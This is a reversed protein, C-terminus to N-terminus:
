LGCLDAACRDSMCAPCYVSPVAAIRASFKEAACPSRCLVDLSRLAYVHCVYSVSAEQEREKREWSELRSFAAPVPQCLGLLVLFASHLIVTINRASFALM